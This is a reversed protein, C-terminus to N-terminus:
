EGAGAEVYEIKFGDQEAREKLWDGRGDSGSNTYIILEQGTGQTLEGGESEDDSPDVDEQEDDKKEDETKGADEGQKVDDKPPEQSCGIAFALLAIIIALLISLKAIHKRM